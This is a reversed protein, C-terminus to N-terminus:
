DMSSRSALQLTRSIFAHLSVIMLRFALHIMAIPIHSPTQRDLDPARYIQRHRVRVRHANSVSKSATQRLRYLRTSKRLRAACCWAPDFHWPVHLSLSSALGSPATSGCLIAHSFKMRSTNWLRTRLDLDLSGFNQGKSSYSCLLKNLDLM